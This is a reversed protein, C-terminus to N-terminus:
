RESASVRMYAGRFAKIHWLLRPMGHLTNASVRPVMVAARIHQQQVLGNTRQVVLSYQLHLSHEPASVVRNLSEIRSTGSPPPRPSTHQLVCETRM